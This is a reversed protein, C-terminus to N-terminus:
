VAYLLLKIGVNRFINSTGDELIIQGIFIPGASHGSVNVDFYQEVSRLLVSSRLNLDFRPQLRFDRKVQLTNVTAPLVNQTIGGRHLHCRREELINRWTSQCNTVSTELCATPGRVHVAQGKSSSVSLSARFTPLQLDVNRLM